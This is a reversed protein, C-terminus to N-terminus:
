IVIAGPTDIGCYNLSLSKLKSNLALGDRLM